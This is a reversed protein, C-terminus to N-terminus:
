YLGFILVCDVAPPHLEVKHKNAGTKRRAVWHVWAGATDVSILGSWGIFCRTPISSGQTM